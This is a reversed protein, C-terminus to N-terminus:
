SKRQIKGNLKRCLSVRPLGFSEEPQQLNGRESGEGAGQRPAAEQPSERCSGSPRPHERDLSSIDPQPVAISIDSHTERQRRKAQSSGSFFFLFSFIWSLLTRSRQGAEEGLVHTSGVTSM